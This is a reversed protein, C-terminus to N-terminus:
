SSMSHVIAITRSDIGKEAPDALAAATAAEAAAALNAADWPCDELVVELVGPAFPAAPVEGAPVETDEPVAM